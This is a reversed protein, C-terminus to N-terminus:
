NELSVQFSEFKVIIDCKITSQEMSKCGRCPFRSWRHNRSPSTTNRTESDVRRIIPGM